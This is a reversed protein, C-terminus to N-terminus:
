LALNSTFISATTKQNANLLKGVIAVLIKDDINTGQQVSFSLKQERVVSQIYRSRLTKPWVVVAVKGCINMGFGCFITINRNETHYDISQFSKVTKLVKLSIWVKLLYLLM